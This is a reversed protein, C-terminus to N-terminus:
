LFVFNNGEEGQPADTYAEIDEVVHVSDSLQVYEKMDNEVRTGDEMISFRRAFKLRTLSKLLAIRDEEKIMPILDMPLLTKSLSFPPKLMRLNSPEAVTVRVLEDDRGLSLPYHPNLIGNYIKKVIEEKHSAFYLTYSPKFLQERVQMAPFSAKGKFKKITWYDRIHGTVEKLISAVELRDALPPGGDWEVYLETEGLGLSAAAFGLLTTRPPFEYTRHYRVDEPARPKFSNFLGVVHVRVASIAKM